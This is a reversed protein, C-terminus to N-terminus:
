TPSVGFVRSKLHDHLWSKFQKMFGDAGPFLGMNFVKLQTNDLYKSPHNSIRIRFWKDTTLYVTGSGSRSQNKIYLINQSKLYDEAQKTLVKVSYNPNNGNCDFHELSCALNRQKYLWFSKKLQKLRWIDFIANNKIKGNWCVLVKTNEKTLMNSQTEKMHEFNMFDCHLGRDKLVEMCPRGIIKSIRWVEFKDRIIALLNSENLISKDSFIYLNIREKSMFKQICLFRFEKAIITNAFGQTRAIKTIQRKHSFKKMYATIKKFM